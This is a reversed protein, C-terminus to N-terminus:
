RTKMINKQLEDFYVMQVEEIESHEKAKKMGEEVILLAKKDDHPPALRLDMWLRCRDWVVYPQYGGGQSM